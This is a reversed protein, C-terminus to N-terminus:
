DKPWLFGSVTNTGKPLLRGSCRSRWFPRSAKARVPRPPTFQEAARPFRVECQANALYPGEAAEPVAPDQGAQPPPPLFAHGILSDTSPQDMSDGITLWSGLSVKSVSLGSCGLNRYQM